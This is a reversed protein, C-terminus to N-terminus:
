YFFQTGLFEDCSAHLARAYDLNEYIKDENDLYTPMTDFSEEALVEIEIVNFNDTIEKLAFQYFENEDLNDFVDVIENSLDHQLIGRMHQALNELIRNQDIEM